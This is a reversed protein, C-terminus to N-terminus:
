TGELWEPVAPDIARLLRAAQRYTPRAARWDRFWTDRLPHLWEIGAARWEEHLTIAYIAAAELCDIEKDHLHELSSTICHGLALGTATEAIDPPLNWSVAEHMFSSAAPDLLRAARITWDPSELAIDVWNEIVTQGAAPLAFRTYVREPPTPLAVRPVTRGGFRMFVDMTMKGAAMSLKAADFCRARNDPGYVGAIDMCGNMDHFYCQEEDVHRLRDFFVDVMTGYPSPIQGIPQM